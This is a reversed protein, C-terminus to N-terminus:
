GAALFRMVAPLIAASDTFAPMHGLGPLALFEAGAIRAAGSQTPAFLPDETGAYAFCPITMAALMEEMGPGAPVAAIWAAVDGAALRTAWAPSVPGVIREIAAVMASGGPLAARLWGRNGEPDRPFPHSGGIVLRDLREPAHRAMGYGIFAGMSYGWFHARGIGLADLVAVVDGVRRAVDYDAEGHPRDSRGHGRADIMILRYAPALAAVYGCEEWDEISQTLGHQLVLPPGDGAVQYHIRIGDHVVYPM